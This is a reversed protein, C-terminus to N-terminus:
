AKWLKLDRFLLKDISTVHKIGLLSFLIGWHEKEFNEGTLFRLLNLGERDDELMEKLFKSVSDAAEINKSKEIYDNM